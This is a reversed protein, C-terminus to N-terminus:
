SLMGGEWERRLVQRCRFSPMRDGPPRIEGESLRDGAM